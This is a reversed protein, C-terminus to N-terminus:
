VGHKRTSRDLSTVLVQLYTFVCFERIRLVPVRVFVPMRVFVRVCECECVCLRARLRTSTRLAHARRRVNLASACARLCLLNNPHLIGAALAGPALFHWSSDGDGDKQKHAKAPKRVRVM